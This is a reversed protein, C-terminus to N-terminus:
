QGRFPRTLGNTQQNNWDDNAKLPYRVVIDRDVGTGGPKGDHGYSILEGYGLTEDYPIFVVKGGWSDNTALYDTGFNSCLQALSDPWKGFRTNYDDCKSADYHLKDYTVYPQGM